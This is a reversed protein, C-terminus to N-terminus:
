WNNAKAMLIKEYVDVLSCDYFLRDAESAVAGSAQYCLMKYFYEIEDPQEYGEEGTPLLNFTHWRANQRKKLEKEQEKTLTKKVLFAPLDLIWKIKDNESQIIAEFPNTSKWWRGSILM